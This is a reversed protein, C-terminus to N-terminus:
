DAIKEGNADLHLLLVDRQGLPGPDTFGTALFGNSAPVIDEVLDDAPGGLTNEWILNGNGDFKVVYVDRNTRLAASYGAAVFTGGPATTVCLAVEDVGPVGFYRSWIPFGDGDTRTVFLDDTGTGLTDASGVVLFGGDGLALLDFAQESGPGGLNRSWDPVLDIEFSFRAIVADSSDSFPQEYGAAVFTNDDLAVVSRFEQDANFDTPGFNTQYGADDFVALFFHLGDNSWSGAVVSGGGPRAAIGYPSGAGLNALDQRWIEAGMDDVRVVTGSGFAPTGSVFFGGGAARALGTTSDSNFWPLISTWIPQRDVGLRAILLQPIFDNDLDATDGALLFGGGALNVLAAGRDDGIDGLYSEPVRNRVLLYRASDLSVIEVPPEFSDLVEIFMQPVISVPEGPWTDQTRCRIIVLEADGEADVIPSENKSNDVTFYVESSSSNFYTLESGRAIQAPALLVTDIVAIEALKYQEFGFLSVGIGARFTGPLENVNVTITFTSGLEIEAFHPNLYVLPVVPEMPITLDLPLLTNVDQVTEGRYMVEGLLDLGEVLFHRDPGIPIELIAVVRNETPAMFSTVTDMDAASVTLRFSVAPGAKFDLSVVMETTPGTGAIKEACGGGALVFGAVTTLMM